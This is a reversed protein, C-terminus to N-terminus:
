RGGETTLSIFADELAGASVEIDWVALNQQFMARLVEDSSRTRIRARQGTWEVDEVHPLAALASQVAAAAHVTIYRYGTMHKIEVASGNAICRGHHMVVIQDAMADAEDLHHTTFLITRREEKAFHRLADWFARRSAVDMATTPEDLFLVRPDGAMALAFQLRRRQGGSLKAASRKAESTLGAIDLLRAVPLPTPYFSRFLHILQLVTVQQPLEVQQLMAGTHIRNAAQSPDADLLRVTGSTPKLLGLMMSVCTSKGAGNPGLLAVVSGEAIALSLDEVASKDRFQKSVNEFEVAVM